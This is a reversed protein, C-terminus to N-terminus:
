ACFPAPGRDGAAVQHDERIRAVQAAHPFDVGLDPVTLAQTVRTERRGHGTSRDYFRATAKQWPLARLREYSAKQNRKVTLAYHAKKTEVLFRADGRRTPPADATVTVGTLDYPALM